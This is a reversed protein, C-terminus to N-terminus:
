LSVMLRVRLHRPPMPRNGYARYDTDAANDVRASLQARVDDFRHSLRLGADVLVFPDLYRSGDSSIYRRGTYRANLNLAVPGVALSAHAKAQERPLYRLPADYSPSGPTSRNRADTYTYTLGADLSVSSTLPQRVSASLEVGRARVREENEPTWTGSRVPAWM